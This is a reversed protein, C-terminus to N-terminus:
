DNAYCNLPTNTYIVVSKTKPQVLVVYLVERYQYYGIDPNDMKFDKFEDLIKKFDKIFRIKVYDHFYNIDVGLLEIFDKKELLKYSYNTTIIRLQEIEFHEIEFIYIKKTIRLLAQLEIKDELIFENSNQLKNLVEKLREQM